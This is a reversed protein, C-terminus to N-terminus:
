DTGSEPETTGVPKEKRMGLIARLLKTEIYGTEDMAVLNAIKRHENDRVVLALLTKLPISVLTNENEM